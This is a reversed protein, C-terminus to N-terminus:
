CLRNVSFGNPTYVTESADGNEVVDEARGLEGAAAGAGTAVEDEAGTAAVVGESGTAPTVSADGAGGAAWVELIRSM